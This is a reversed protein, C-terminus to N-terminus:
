KCARLIMMVPCGATSSLHSNVQMGVIRRSTRTKVRTDNQVLIESLRESATQLTRLM